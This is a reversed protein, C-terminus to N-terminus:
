QLFTRIFDSTCFDCWVPTIAPKHYYLGFGVCKSKCPWFILNFYSNVLVTSHTSAFKSGRLKRM